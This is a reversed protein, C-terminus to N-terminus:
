VVSKRDILLCILALAIFILIYPFAEEFTVPTNIPKKIDKIEQDQNTKVNNVYVKISDSSKNEIEISPIFFTGSDWITLVYEQSIIWGNETKSSDIKSKSIIEFNAISDQFEKWNKIDKINSKISLIIQDGILINSSDTKTEIQAFTLFPFILLILIIRIKM